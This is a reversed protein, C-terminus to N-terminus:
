SRFQSRTSFSKFLVERVQNIALSFYYLAMSFIILFFLFTKNIDHVQLYLIAVTSLFIAVVIAIHSYMLVFGKSIQHHDILKDSLVVYSAFMLVLSLFLFAAYVLPTKSNFYSTLNVIAEGFAIIVILSVREVLHPFNVRETKFMGKLFLPLIFGVIYGSICFYIGVPYGIILGVIILIFEIGLIILFAQKDNNDAKVFLYQCFLILIMVAMAINFYHFTVQWETNINNALYVAVFMNLGLGGIDLFQ